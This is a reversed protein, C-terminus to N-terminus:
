APDSEDEAASRPGRRPVDRRARRLIEDTLFVKPAQRRLARIEELQSRPDVSQPELLHELWAIAEESISRRNAAALEKLRQYLSDPVQELTLQAM